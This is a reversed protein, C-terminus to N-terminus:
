TKSASFNLCPNPRWGKTFNLNGILLMLHAKDSNILIRKESMTETRETQTADIRLGDDQQPICSELRRSDM